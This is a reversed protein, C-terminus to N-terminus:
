AAREGTGVLGEVGGGGGGGDEGSRWDPFGTSGMIPRSKNNQSAAVRDRDEVMRPHSRCVNFATIRTCALTMIAVSGFPLLGEPPAKSAPCEDRHTGTDPSLDRATLTYGWSGRTLLQSAYKATYSPHRNLM